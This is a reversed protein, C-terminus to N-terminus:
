SAQQFYSQGPLFPTVLHIHAMKIKQAIVIFFMKVFLKSRKFITIMYNSITIMYDSINKNVLM